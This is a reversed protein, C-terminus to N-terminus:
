SEHDHLSLPPNSPGDTRPLRGLRQSISALLLRDAPLDECLRFAEQLDLEAQRYDALEVRLDARNILLAAYAVPLQSAVNRLGDLAPRLCADAEQRLGADLLTRAQYATAEAATERHEVSAFHEPGYLPFFNGTDSLGIPYVLRDRWEDTDLDLVPAADRLQGFLMRGHKTFAVEIRNPEADLFAFVLHDPIELLTVQARGDAEMQDIVKFMRGRPWLCLGWGDPSLGRLSRANSSFIVYRHPAVFGGQNVAADCFTPERLLMGPRYRRMVEDPLTTDRFFAPCEYFTANVERILDDRDVGFV